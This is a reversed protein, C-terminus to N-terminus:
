PGYVKTDSSELSSLLLSSSPRPAVVKKKIVRSGLTSHYVLRRAKFVRGGRFRKVIRRLLQESMSLWWREEADEIENRLM